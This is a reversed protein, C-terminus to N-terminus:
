TSYHAFGYTSAMAWIMAVQAMAQSHFNIFATIFLTLCIIHFVGWLSSHGPNPRKLAVNDKYNLWACHAWTYLLGAVLAGVFFKTEHKFIFSLVPITFFYLGTLLAAEILLVAAVFALVGTATKPFSDNSSYM